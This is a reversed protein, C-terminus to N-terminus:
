EQQMEQFLFEGGLGQAFVAVIEPQETTLHDAFAVFVGLEHFKGDVMEDDVHDIVVATWEDIRADCLCFLFGEIGNAPLQM